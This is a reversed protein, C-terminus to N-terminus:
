DMYIEKRNEWFSYLCSPPWPKGNALFYSLIRCRNIKICNDESIVHKRVSWWTPLWNSALQGCPWDDGIPPSASLFDIYSIYSVRSYPAHKCPSLPRPGNAALLLCTVSPLFKPIYLAKPRGWDDRDFSMKGPLWLNSAVKVRKVPLWLSDSVKSKVCTTLTYYIKWWNDELVRHQLM